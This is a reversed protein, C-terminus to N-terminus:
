GAHPGSARGAQVLKQRASSFKEAADKHAEQDWLAEAALSDLAATQLSHAGYVDAFM